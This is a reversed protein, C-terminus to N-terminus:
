PRSAKHRRDHREHSRDQSGRRESRQHAGNELAVSAQLVEIPNYAQAAAASFRAVITEQDGDRVRVAGHGAGLIDFFDTKPDHETAFFVIQGPELLPDGELLVLRGTTKDLGSAQNVTVRDPLNGAVTELVEVSFQTQPIQFDANDVPIGEAGVQELVRGLFAHTSVGM